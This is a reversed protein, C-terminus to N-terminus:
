ILAEAYFLAFVNRLYKVKYNYYLTLIDPLLNPLITRLTM